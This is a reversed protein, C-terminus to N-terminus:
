PAHLAEDRSPWAELQHILHAPPIPKSSRLKEHGDVGLLVVRFADNPVRFRVRLKHAALANLPRGDHSGLLDDRVDVVVMRHWAIGERDAALSDVQERYDPHYFSPTFILLVPNTGLYQELRVDDAAITM